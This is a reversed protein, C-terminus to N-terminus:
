VTEFVLGDTRLSLLGDQKGLKKNSIICPICTSIFKIVLSELHPIWFQQEISHITKQSAFHGVGHAESIIEREMLKPVVLLDNGKILKFLIGGKLKFDNYPREKLVTCIAQIYEKKQQAAKLRCSIEASVFFVDSAYRSLCDVHRMKEGARHEAKFDFDAMYLIWEAVERSTTTRTRRAM